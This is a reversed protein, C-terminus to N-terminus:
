FPRAPERVLAEIDPGTAPPEAQAAPKMAAAIGAMADAKERLDKAWKGLRQAGYVVIISERMADVATLLDIVKDTEVMDIIGDSMIRNLTETALAADSNTRRTRMDFEDNTM